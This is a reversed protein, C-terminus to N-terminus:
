KTGGKPNAQNNSNAENGKDPKEQKGSESIKESGSFEKRMRRRKELWERRQEPTMKSLEERMRRNEEHWARRQEPTMKAPDEFMRRREEYWARRQEPTMTAPDQAGEPPADRMAASGNRRASHRMRFAEKHLDDSTRVGSRHPLQSGDHRQRMKEDIEIRHRLQQMEARLKAVDRELAAVREASPGTASGNPTSSSSGQQEQDRAGCGAVFLLTVAAIVAARTMRKKKEM